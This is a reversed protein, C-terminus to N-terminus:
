KGFLNKDDRQMENMYAMLTQVDETEYLDVVKCSPGGHMVESCVRCCLSQHTTCYFHKIRDIHYGCYEWEMDQPDKAEAQQGNNNGPYENLYQEEEEKKKGALTMTMPGMFKEHTYREINIKSSHGIGRM